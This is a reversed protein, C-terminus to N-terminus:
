RNPIREPPFNNKDWPDRMQLYYYYYYRYYCYLIYIGHNHTRRVSRLSMSSRITDSLIIFCARKRNCYVLITGIINHGNSLQTCM